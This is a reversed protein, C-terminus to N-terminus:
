AEGGPAAFVTQESEVAMMHRIAFVMGPMREALEDFLVRVALRVAQSDVLQQQDCLKQWLEVMRASFKRMTEIKVLLTRVETRSEEEQSVVTFLLGDEVFAVMRGGAEQMIRSPDREVQVILNNRVDDNFFCFEYDPNENIIWYSNDPELPAYVSFAEVITDVISKTQEIDM